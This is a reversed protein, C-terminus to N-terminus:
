GGGAFFFSFLLVALLVGAITAYRRDGARLFAVFAGAVGAVPTLLLLAVGTAIVALPDVPRHALGRRIDAISSITHVARGQARNALLRELNLTEGDTGGRAAFAVLGVLMLAVSLIGGGLLIRATFSEANRM